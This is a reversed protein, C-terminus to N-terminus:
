MRAWIMLVLPALIGMVIAFIARGMGRKEPHLKIDIIAAVGLIIAIPSPFILICSLGAYGALIALWSRGVPAIMRVATNDAISKSKPEQFAPKSIEETAFNSRNLTSDPITQTSKGEDSPMLLVVIAGVFLVGAIIVIIWM